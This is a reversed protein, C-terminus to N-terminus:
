EIFKQAFMKCIRQSSGIRMEPFITQLTSPTVESFMDASDYEEYILRQILIEVTLSELLLAGGGHDDFIRRLRPKLDELKSEKEEAEILKRRLNDLDKSAEFLAKKVSDVNAEALKISESFRLMRTARSFKNLVTSEPTRDKRFLQDLVIYMNNDAAIFNKFCSYKLFCVADSDPPSDDVVIPSESFGNRSTFHVPSPTAFFGEPSVSPQNENTGHNFRLSNANSAWLKRDPTQPSTSGRVRTAAGKLLEATEPHVTLTGSEM